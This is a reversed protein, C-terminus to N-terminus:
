FKGSSGFGDASRETQESITEESITLDTIAQILIQAIKQGPVINFIEESLNKIIVKIEGRYNSDIVGGMTKIGEFAIGSKDWILGVYNEPIAMKIGTAVLAQGYPSISYYDNAYLDYGADGSHAKQPIKASASMKELRLINKQPALSAEISKNKVSEPETVSNLVPPVAQKEFISNEATIDTQRNDTIIDGIAQFGSYNYIERPKIIIKPGELLDRVTEWIEEHIEEIALNANIKWWGYEERLKLHAWRVKTTLEEDNEHKHNNEIAQRFREGDFLFVLDEDILHSNIEKLYAEEVGAGLGWAIGTGKYDEAVVNIGAKLKGILENQYQTRNLAQITQAERPSLNYPNGSRLYDNLIVGSPALSYIAYKVYEAQYGNNKLREVLLKAQTSKGLNNIGYFVILKGPYNNM